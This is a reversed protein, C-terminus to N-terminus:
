PSAEAGGRRGMLVMEGVPATAEATETRRQLGVSAVEDGAALEDGQDERTEM